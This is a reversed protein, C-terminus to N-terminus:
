LPTHISVHNLQDGSLVLVPDGKILGESEREREGERRGEWERVRDGREM